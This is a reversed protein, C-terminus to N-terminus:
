TLSGRDKVQLNSSQELVYRNGNKTIIGSASLYKESKQDFARIITDRDSHTFPLKINKTIGDVKASLTVSGPSRLNAEQINTITGVVETRIHIEDESYKTSFKEFVEADREKFKTNYVKRPSTDSNGSSINLGVKGTREVIKTLAHSFNSTLGANFATEYDAAGNKKSLQKAATLTEEFKDSVLRGFPENVTKPLSPNQDSFAVPLLLTLIFSGEETQGMRVSDIYERVSNPRRGRISKIPHGANVVAASSEVLELGNYLTDIADDIILSTSLRGENIKIRFIDYGFAAINRLVTMVDQDSFSSLKSIVEATRVTFDDVDNTTPVVLEQSTGNDTRNYRSEFAGWQEVFKFGKALIYQELATPTIQKLTSSHARIDIM